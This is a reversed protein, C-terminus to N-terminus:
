HNAQPPIQIKSKENKLSLFARIRSYVQERSAFGDKRDVLIGHYFFLMVPIANIEYQLEFDPCEGQNRLVFNVNPAFDFQADELIPHMLDCIALHENRIYIIDFPSKPKSENQPGIERKVM